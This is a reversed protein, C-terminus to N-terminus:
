VANKLVLSQGVLYPMQKGATESVANNVSVHCRTL